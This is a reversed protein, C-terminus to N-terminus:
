GQFWKFDFLPFWSFQTCHYRHWGRFISIWPQPPLWLAPLPQALLLLWPFVSKILMATKTQNPSHFLIGSVPVRSGELRLATKINWKQFSPLGPNLSGHRTFDNKCHWETTSCLLVPCCSSLFDCDDIVTYRSFGLSLPSSLLFGSESQYACGVGSLIGGSWGSFLTRLGEDGQLPERLMTATSLM